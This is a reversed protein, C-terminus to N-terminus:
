RPGVEPVWRSPGLIFITGRFWAVRGGHDFGVQEIIVNVAYKGLQWFYKGDSRTLEAVCDENFDPILIFESAGQGHHDVFGVIARRQWQHSISVSDGAPLVRPSQFKDGSFTSSFLINPEKRYRVILDPAQKNVFITVNQANNDASQNVNVNNNDQGYALPVLLTLILCALCHSKPAEPNETPVGQRNHDLPAPRPLARSLTTCM